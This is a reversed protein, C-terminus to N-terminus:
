PCPGVGGPRDTLIYSWQLRRRKGMGFGGFINRRASVLISGRDPLKGAQFLLFENKSPPEMKILSLPDMETLALTTLPTMRGALHFGPRGGRVRWSAGFRTQEHGGIMMFAVM